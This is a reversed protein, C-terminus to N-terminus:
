HLVGHLRHLLWPLLMVLLVAWAVMMWKLLLLLGLHLLLMFYTVQLLVLGKVLWMLLLLVRLVLLLLGV